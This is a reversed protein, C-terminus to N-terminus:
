HHGHTYHESTDLVVRDWGDLFQAGVDVVSAQIEPDLEGWAPIDYPATDGMAEYFLERTAEWMKRHYAGVALIGAADAEIM